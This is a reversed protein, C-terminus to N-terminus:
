HFDDNRSTDDIFADGPYDFVLYSYESNATRLITKAGTEITLIKKVPHTYDAQFTVERNYSLNESHEKYYEHDASDLRTIDYRTNRHNNTLQASLDLEQEPKRFTRKFDLSADYNAGGTKTDFDNTYLKLSPGNLVAFYNGTTGKSHNNFDHLRISSSLNM